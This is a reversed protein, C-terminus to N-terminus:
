AQRVTEEYDLRPLRQLWSSEGPYGINVVLFSRWDGAPFFEADLGAPDFGGIPGAALGAARVAIIFYAAQLWASGTGIRDRLALDAELAERMEPRFPLLRPIQHHFTTDIALIASVPAQTAKSINGPQLHRLLRAKGGPTTVYVIRLPLTNAWTPGWKMLDYIERLQEGTVPRDSFTRATRAETFLLASGVADLRALSTKLSAQAPPSTM